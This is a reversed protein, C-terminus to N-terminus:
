GLSPVAYLVADSEAMLEGDVRVEARADFLKRRQRIVWAKIELSAGIRIPKHFRTEIKATMAPINQFFLCWGFAEDMLSFTVGGHLIGNWGGHEKRAVYEAQSGMEGDRRFPVKLGLPNESGCVYCTTDKTGTFAM